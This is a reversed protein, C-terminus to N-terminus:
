ASDPRRHDRAIVGAGGTGAPGDAAFPPLDALSESLLALSDAAQAASAPRLEPEKALLTELQAWLPAPIGLIPPPAQEVQPRLVALPHSGAFPTRGSLMEYLVIGASYLDVSSTASDHDAVEPAM